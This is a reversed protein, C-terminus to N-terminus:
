FLPFNDKLINLLNDLNDDSAMINRKILGCKQCKYVIKYTDKYKDMGIPKLVGHCSCARDGPNNDVHLSSLCNPCHDRATYGLPKVEQNCVVCKFSEDIMTFKKKDM